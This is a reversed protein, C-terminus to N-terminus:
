DFVWVDAGGVLHAFLVPLALKKAAQSVINLREKPRARKFPDAAVVLVAEAGRLKMDSVSDPLSDIQTLIGFRTGAIEVVEGPVVLRNTGNEVLVLGPTMGFLAPVALKPALTTFAEKQRLLFEARRSFGEVPYGTLAGLPAVLLGAGEQRARLSAEQLKEANARFDGVSANIQFISVGLM